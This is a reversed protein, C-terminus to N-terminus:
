TQDAEVGGTHHDDRVFSAYAKHRLSRGRSESKPSTPLIDASYNEAWALDRSGEGM